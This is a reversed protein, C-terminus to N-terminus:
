CPSNLNPSKLNRKNIRELRHCFLPLCPSPASCHATFTKALVYVVFKNGFNHWTRTHTRTHTHLKYVQGCQQSKPARGMQFALHATLTGVLTHTFTDPHRCSHTHTHTQLRLVSVANGSGRFAGCIQWRAFCATGRKRGGRRRREGSERPRPLSQYVPFSVWMSALVDLRLCSRLSRRM